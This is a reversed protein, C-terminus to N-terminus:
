DGPRDHHSGPSTIPIRDLTGVDRSPLSPRSRARIGPREVKGPRGVSVEVRTIQHLRGTGLRHEVADRSYGLALLQRRAVM